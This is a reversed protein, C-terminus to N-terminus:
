PYLIFNSKSNSGLQKRINEPLNKVIDHEEESEPNKLKELEYDTVTKSYRGTSFSLTGTLKIDAPNLIM